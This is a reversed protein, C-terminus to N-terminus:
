FTTWSFLDGAPRRHTRRYQPQKEMWTQPVCLNEQFILELFRVHSSEGEGHAMLEEEEAVTKAWHLHPGAAGQTTNLEDLLQAKFDGIVMIVNISKIQLSSGFSM